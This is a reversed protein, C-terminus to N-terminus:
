SEKSQSSSNSQQSTTSSLQQLAAWRPDTQDHSHGDELDEFRAGCEPCLGECDDRCLPSAPLDLVVADRLTPELDLHDDVLEPLEDDPDLDGSGPYAFLEQLEIERDMSVADLCRGCEGTVHVLATGSVLVGEMVSELRLDLTIPSNAPVGVLPTGLHEPAPVQVSVHRMSGPRRGLERTDIVLPKRADLRPQPHRRTATMSMVTAILSNPANRSRRHRVYRDRGEGGSRPAYTHASPRAV